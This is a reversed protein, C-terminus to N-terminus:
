FYQLMHYMTNPLYNLCRSLSLAMHLVISDGRLTSRTTRLSFLLLATKFVRVMKVHSYIHFDFSMLSVILGLPFTLFPSYVCVLLTLSISLSLPSSLSLYLDLPLDLSLSPFLTVVLSRSLSLSPSDTLSGSVLSWFDSVLSWIDCVLSWFTCKCQVTKKEGITCALKLNISTM